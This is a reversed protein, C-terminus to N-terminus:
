SLGGLRYLWFKQVQSFLGSLQSQLKSFALFALLIKAKWADINSTNNKKDKEFSWLQIDPKNKRTLCNMPPYFLALLFTVLAKPVKEFALYCNEPKM